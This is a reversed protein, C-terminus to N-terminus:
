TELYIVRYFSPGSTLTLEFVKFDVLCTENQIPVNLKYVFM